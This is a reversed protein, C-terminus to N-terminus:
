PDLDGHSNMHCQTRIDNMHVRLGVTRSNSLATEPIEPQKSRDNRVKFASNIDVETRSHHHGLHKELGKVSRPIQPVPDLSECRHIHIEDLVVTWTFVNQVSGGHSLSLTKRQGTMM